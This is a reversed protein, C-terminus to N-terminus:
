RLLNCRDLQPLAFDFLWVREAPLPSTVDPPGMVSRERRAGRGPYQGQVLQPLCDMM